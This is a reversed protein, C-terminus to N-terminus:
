EINAKGSFIEDFLILSICPLQNIMPDHVQKSVVPDKRVFCYPARTQISKSDFDIKKAPPKWLEHNKKSKDINLASVEKPVRLMIEQISNIINTIVGAKAPIKARLEKTLFHLTRLPDCNDFVNRKDTDNRQSRHALLKSWKANDIIDQTTIDAETSERSKTVNRPSVMTTAKRAKVQRVTKSDKDLAVSKSRSKTIKESPKVHTLM